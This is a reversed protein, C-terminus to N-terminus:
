ESLHLRPDCAPPTSEHPPTSLLSLGVAKKEGGLGVRRADGVDGALQREYSAELQLRAGRAAIEDAQSLYLV